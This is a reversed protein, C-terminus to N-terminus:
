FEWSLGGSVTNVSYTEIPDNSLTREYEYAAVLKLSKVLTRECRVGATVRTRERKRLDTPSVTQTLYRYYAVGAEATLEWRGARYRFQQWGGVRDYDFYGAANDRNMKYGLKTSARWHRPEDFYHRWVLRAEQQWYRRHTDPVAYGQADTALSDYGRWTLEYGLSVESLHGYTRGFYLRPGTELYDDLPDAYWQCTVPIELSLWYQRGLNLRGGPRATFAHGTVLVAELNTETVSVDLVQHQFYYDGALSAEATDGFLLKAQARAYALAENEAGPADLYRNYDGGALLTYQPGDLTLRHFFAEAGAGVFPSAVPAAHSLTVNDKYGGGSRVTFAHEWGPLLLLLDDKPAEAALGSCGILTAALM